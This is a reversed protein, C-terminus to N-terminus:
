INQNHLFIEEGSQHLKMSNNCIIKLVFLLYNHGSADLIQLTYAAIKWLHQFIIGMIRSLLANEFKYHLIYPM